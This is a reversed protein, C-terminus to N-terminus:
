PPDPLRFVFDCEPAGRGLTGTRVMRVGGPLRGIILDDGHCALQTLEPAGVHAFVRHYFCARATCALATPRVEVEWTWGPAPFVRTVVWGVIRRTVPWPLPLRGFVAAARALPRVQHEELLKLIAVPDAHGRATLARHAALTPAASRELHFALTAGAVPFTRMQALADPFEREMAALVRRGEAPGLVRRLSTAWSRRFSLKSPAAM